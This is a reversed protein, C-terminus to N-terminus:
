LILRKVLFDNWGKATGTTFLTQLAGTQDFHSDWIALIDPKNWQSQLDPSFFFLCLSSDCPWIIPSLIPHVFYHLFMYFSFLVFKICPTLIVLGSDTLVGAAFFPWFFTSLSLIIVVALRIFLRESTKSKNQSTNTSKLHRWVFLFVFLSFVFSFFLLFQKFFFFVSSFFFSYFCVIFFFVQYNGVVGLSLSKNLTRTHWYTYIYAYNYPMASM